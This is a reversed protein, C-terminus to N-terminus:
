KSKKLWIKGIEILFPSSNSEGIDINEFTIEIKEVQELGYHNVGNDSQSYLPMFEPYPRPLLLAGGDAKLDKLAIEIEQFSTNLEVKTNRAGSNEYTFGIKIPLKERGVVRAQLIIKNFDEGSTLRDMLKDKIPYQFGMLDSTSPEEARLELLMEGSFYGAELRTRFGEIYTPYIHIKQDHAPNFIELAGDERAVYVKWTQPPDSAWHLESSKEGSPFYVTEGNEEVAIRYTLMGPNLVEAPIEAEYDYPSIAEMPLEQFRDGGLRFQLTAKIPSTSATKAKIKFPRNSSLEFPPKHLLAVSNHTPRPAVFERIGIAGIKQNKLDFKKGKKNILYTGPRIPISGAKAVTKYSNGNDLPMVNFDVGLENLNIQMPHESWIVRTVSRDPSTKAFPDRLPVADPMVELRWVGSELKDLFYAGLGEYKVVQSSGVGALHKLKKPNKPTSNTNNSYYFIEESNMESLSEHYSVRIPGFQNNDPYNGYNEKLPLNRFAKGAIMMSIAKAPTYILNLYHTQYETNTHAIALPDYAFQTAWQFGAKRFSRAMAPYMYSGMIDAADFEYVMLPKQHFEPISDFPIHYRNVHPLYNEQLTKGYVLGSPYWQFSFGDAESGAVADAYHPGQSINYFIPKSFGTGTIARKLRNIYATVGEKPGSHAPENNIEAAVVNPDEQYSMKTYPNVHEFFQRLYNEQASIAEEHTTLKGRGYHRSFGPTDGDPEPYGNGWFAIPTIITSIERKALESLLFDFLRLHENELLNGDVDSIETDWVHVRFANFGLRSMHYVDERIAQELDVGLSQHARYAFAFPTSYNVGFFSAEKKSEQWRLIGNEDVYVPNSEKTKKKQAYSTGPASIALVLVLILNCVSIKM